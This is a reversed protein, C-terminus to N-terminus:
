QTQMYSITEDGSVQECLFSCADPPSAIQMRVQKLSDWSVASLLQMQIVGTTMVSQEGDDRSVCRWM